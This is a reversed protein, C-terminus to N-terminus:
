QGSLCIDSILHERLEKRVIILMTIYCATGGIIESIPEALFVGTTGLGFLRPLLIVLPIVLAVKRFM